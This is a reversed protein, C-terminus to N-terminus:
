RAALALQQRSFGRGLRGDKAKQRLEATVVRKLKILLHARAGGKVKPREDARRLAEVNVAAIVEADTLMEEIDVGALARNEMVDMHGSQTNTTERRVVEAFQEKTLREKLFIPIYVIGRDMFFKRKEDVYFKAERPDPEFDVVVSPKMMLYYRTVGLLNTSHPGLIQKRLEDFYYPQAYFPTGLVEDIEDKQNKTRVYPRIM